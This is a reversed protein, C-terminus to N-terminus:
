IFVENTGGPNGGPPEAEIRPLFLVWKGWDSEFFETLQVPDRLKEMLVDFIYDACHWDNTYKPADRLYACLRNIARNAFTKFNSTVVREAKRREVQRAYERTERLTLPKDNLELGLHFDSDLRKLAAIPSDLQLYNQVFGVADYHVGCGFCHYATPYLKASAQRENHFVCACTDGRKVAV